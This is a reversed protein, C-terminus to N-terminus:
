GALRAALRQLLPRRKWEAWARDAFDRGRPSLRYCHLRGFGPEPPLEDLLGYDHLPRWTTYLVHGAVICREDADDASHVLLRGRRLLALADIFEGCDPIIPQAQASM